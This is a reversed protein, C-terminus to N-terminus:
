MNVRLQGLFDMKGLPVGYHRLVVYTTTAHFYFNPLSFSQIFDQAVFPIESGGVRFMLPKDALTDIDGRSEVQLGEAAERVLGRLQRYTLDGLKPPPQFEGKKLGQIAGLSHHWVSVVQFSFPAMDERFRYNILEGLDLASDAAHQEGKALVNDIGGLAQLFSPICIDYLSSSM